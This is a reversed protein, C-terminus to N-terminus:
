LPETFATAHFVLPTNRLERQCAPAHRIADALSSPVTRTHPKFARLSYHKKGNLIVM